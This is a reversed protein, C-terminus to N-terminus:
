AEDTVSNYMKLFIPFDLTQQVAQRISSINVYNFHTIDVNFHFHFSHRLSFPSLSSNEDFVLRLNFTVTDFLTLQVCM